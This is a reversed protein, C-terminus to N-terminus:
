ARGRHESKALKAARKEEEVEARAVIFGMGLRRAIEVLIGIGVLVYGATFLKLWQDTITLSPDLISSTTLTAVAVYLGDALAWDNRTAADDPASHARARWDAATNASM